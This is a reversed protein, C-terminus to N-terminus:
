LNAWKTDDVKTEGGPKWDRKGEWEIVSMISLYIISLKDFM